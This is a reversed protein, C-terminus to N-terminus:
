GFIVGLLLVALVPGVSALGVFGFSDQSAAKSGRIASLGVGLSLIFPVTVPGTTAGGADFSVGLFEPPAFAALSFVLAYGGVLLYSLPINFISRVLGLALFIGVGLAVVVLLLYRSIGGGSVTDVQNALVQVGPEAVTVAFGVAIGFAIVLWIKGSQLLSSGVSEGISLLSARVGILFLTLGVSAMIVSILFVLFDHWPMRVLAIQLVFIVATIPLISFLVEKVTEKLNL